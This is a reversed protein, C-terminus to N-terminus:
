FRFHIFKVVFDSFVVLVTLNLTKFHFQFQFHFNFHFYIYFQFNFHFYLVYLGGDEDLIISPQPLRSLPLITFDTPIFENKSPISLGKTM